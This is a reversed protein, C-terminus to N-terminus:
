RARAQSFEPVLQFLNCGGDNVPCRLVGLEVLEAFIEICGSAKDGTRQCFAGISFPGEGISGQVKQVTAYQAKSMGYPYADSATMADAM